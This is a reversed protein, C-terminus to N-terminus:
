LKQQTRKNILRLLKIKYYYRIYIYIIYFVFYNIYKLSSEDFILNLSVNKYIPDSKFVLDM